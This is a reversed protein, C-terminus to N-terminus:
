GGFTVLVYVMAASAGLLVAARAMLKAQPGSRPGTGRQFVMPWILNTRKYFLYFLVAAIHLAVLGLLVDFVMGHWRAAMRGTEFSVHRSLPGSEVGDVDVAVMGLCCQTLLTALLAVVSWGGLPNHSPFTSPMRSFLDSRVYAFARRPGRVFAAFRAPPSGAMGWLVRFLLVALIALGCARHWDLVRAKGSWWSFVFLGSLAAHFLRVPLCWGAAATKTAQGM